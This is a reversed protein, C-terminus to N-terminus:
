QCVGRVVELVLGCMVGRAVSKVQLCDFVKGLCERCAAQGMVGKLAEPMGKELLLRRAKERIESEQVKRRAKKERRKKEAIEVGERVKRLHAAVAEDSTNQELLTEQILMRTAELSTNGPRLLINKAVNLLSRRLLWASSLTFLENLIAFFIEIIFQTEQESLQTTSPTSTSTSPIPSSEAGSTLETVTTNTQTVEAPSSSRPPPTQPHPIPIKVSYIESRSGGEGDSNQSRSQPRPRPPLPPRKTTSPSLPMELFDDQLDLPPPPFVKLGERGNSSGDGSSISFIQSPGSEQATIGNRSELPGPKAIKDIVGSDPLRGHEKTFEERLDWSNPIVAVSGKEMPLPRREEREDAAKPQYSQSRRLNGIGQVGAKGGQAANDGVKKFAKPNPWAPTSLGVGSEEKELFRKMGESQALTKERLADNIYRELNLCLQEKSVGRWNPVDSHNVAFRETGSIVALKILTDHLTEFDGYKRTIIWGPIGYSSHPEIPKSRFPQQPSTSNPRSPPSMYERPDLPASPLAPISRKASPPRAPSSISPAISNARSRLPAPSGLAIETAEANDSDLSSTSQSMHDDQRILRQAKRREEEEIMRTLEQAERMAQQMAEEAKSLRAEKRKNREKDEPTLLFENAEKSNNQAGETVEIQEIIDPQIDGELFYVIWQNIFDAESFSDVTMPLIIGAMIEHLFTRVPGCELVSKDLFSKLVDDAALRYKRKQLDQDLLQALASSPYDEIYTAISAGPASGTGNNSLATALERFFVILINSTSILFMIFSDTARKQSVHSHIKVLADSLSDKCAEPFNNEDPLLPNYWHRVYDRVLASTFDDIAAATATPLSTYTRKTTQILKEGVQDAKIGTKIWKLVEQEQRRQAEWSSHVIVGVLVGSVFLAIRGVILYVVLTAGLLVGGLMEPTAGALFQMGHSALQEINLAAAPSDSRTMDTAPLFPEPCKSKQTSEANRSNLSKDKNVGNTSTLQIESSQPIGNQIVQEVAENKNNARSVSDLM